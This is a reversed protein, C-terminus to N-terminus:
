LYSQRVRGLYYLSGFYVVVDNEDQFTKKVYAIADSVLPFTALLKEPSLAKVYSALEDASMTRENLSATVVFGDFQNMAIALMKEVEKDALMGIIGIKRYRRQTYHCTLSECLVEVGKVNHAGDIITIPDKSLCEFRAPWQTKSLGERIMNHTIPYRYASILTEVIAVALRANEVQYPAILGLSM